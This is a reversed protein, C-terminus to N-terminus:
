IKEKKKYVEKHAKQKIKKFEEETLNKKYLFHSQVRDGVMCWFLESKNEQETM